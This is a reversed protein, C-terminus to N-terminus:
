GEKNFITVVAVLDALDSQDARAIFHIEDEAKCKRQGKVDFTGHWQMGSDTEHDGIKLAYMWLVESRQAYVENADVTSMVNIVSGQKKRVIAMVLTGALTGTQGQAVSWNGVMRTLTESDEYEFLVTDVQTTDIGDKIVIRNNKDMARKTTNKNVM